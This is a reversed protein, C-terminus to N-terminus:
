EFIAQTYQIPEIGRNELVRADKAGAGKAYVPEFGDATRALLFVYSHGDDPHWLHSGRQYRVRLRKPVADEDAHLVEEVDIVVHRITELKRRGEERWRRFETQDEVVVGRVAISPWREMQERVQRGIAPLDLIPDADSTIPPMTPEPENQAAPQERREPPVSGDPVDLAQRVQVPGKRDSGPSQCGALGALLVSALLVSSSMKLGMNRM